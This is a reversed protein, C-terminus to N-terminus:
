ETKAYIPNNYDCRAYDPNIYGPFAEDGHLLPSLVYVRVCVDVSVPFQRLRVNQRVEAKESWLLGTQQNTSQIQYSYFPSQGGVTKSYHIRSKRKQKSWQEYSLQAHAPDFKNVGTMCGCLSIFLYLVHM